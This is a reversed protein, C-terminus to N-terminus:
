ASGGIFGRLSNGVSLASSAPCSVKTTRRNSRLASLSGIDHATSAVIHQYVIREIYEVWITTQVYQHQDVSRIVCAAAQPRVLRQLQGGYVLHNPNRETTVDAAASSPREASRAHHRYCALTTLRQLSMTNTDFVSLDFQPKFTNTNNTTLLAYLVQLPKLGFWDSCSVATFNTASTETITVDAAASSPREASRAYISDFSDHTMSTVM